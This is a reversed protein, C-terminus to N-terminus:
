EQRLELILILSDGTGIFYVFRLSDAISNVAMADSINIALNQGAQYVRDITDIKTFTVAEHTTQSNYYAGWGINDFYLQYGLTACSDSRAAGGTLATTDQDIGLSIVGYRYALSIADSYEVGDVLGNYIQVSNFNRATRVGIQAFLGAALLLILLITKKM